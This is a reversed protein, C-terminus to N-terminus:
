LSELLGYMKDAYGDARERPIAAKIVAYGNRLLDDRWDGYSPDQGDMKMRGDDVTKIAASPQETISVTTTAM